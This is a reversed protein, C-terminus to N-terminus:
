RQLASGARQTEQGVQLFHPEQPLVQRVQQGCQLRLHVHAGAPFHCETEPLQIRGQLGVINVTNHM